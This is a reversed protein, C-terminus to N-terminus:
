RALIPLSFLNGVIGFGGVITCAVVEIWFAVQKHVEMEHQTAGYCTFNSTMKESSKLVQAKSYHAFPRKGVRFKITPRKAYFALSSLFIKPERSRSLMMNIFLRRSASCTWPFQRKISPEWNGHYKVYYTGIQDIRSKSTHSFHPMRIKANEWLNKDQYFQGTQCCQKVAIKLNELVRGFPGKQSNKTLKQESLIYVYSAESVNFTVKETIKLRRAM